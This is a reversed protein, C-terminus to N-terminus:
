IFPYRLHLTALAASVMGSQDGYQNNTQGDIEGSHKLNLNHGIEHMQASVSTCWDDSYVSNWSNYWAYAIGSMTKSPLCYMVHDALLNPNSVGFNDNLANTIANVMKQDGDKTKVKVTVTTSGASITNGNRTRSAAPIINLKGKSCAGFQSKLNVKDGNTGFVSDSLQSESKSTSKDKAIVRVILVTKDGIVTALKRNTPDPKKLKLAISPPTISDSEDISILGMAPFVIEAEGSRFSGKEFNDYIFEDSLGKIHYALGTPTVCALSPPTNAKEIIVATCKEDLIKENSPLPRPLCM